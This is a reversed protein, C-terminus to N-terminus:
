LGVVITEALMRSTGSVAREFNREEKDLPLSRLARNDFALSELTAMSRGAAAAPNLTLPRGHSQLVTASVLRPVCRWLVATAAHHM